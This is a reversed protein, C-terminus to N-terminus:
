NSGVNMNMIEPVMDEAVKLDNPTLSDTLSSRNREDAELTLDSGISNGLSELSLISTMLVDTSHPDLIDKLIEKESGKPISQKQAGFVKKLLDSSSETITSRRKDQKTNFLDPIPQSTVGIDTPVLDNVNAWSSILSQRLLLSMRKSKRRDVRKNEHFIDDIKLSARLSGRLHSMAEDASRKRRFDQNDDDDDSDSYDDLEKLQELFNKVM